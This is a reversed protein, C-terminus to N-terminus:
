PHSRLAVPLTLLRRLLVWSTSLLGLIWIWAAALAATDFGKAAGAEPQPTSYLPPPAPPPTGSRGCTASNRTLVVALMTEPSTVVKKPIM